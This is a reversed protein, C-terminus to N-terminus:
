STTLGLAIAKQGAEFRSRVELKALIASVHHDVTRTSVTLQKAIEANRLGKALLVLVEIERDSLGSPNSRTTDRPGRAIRTAGMQRLREIARKAAPEAGLSQFISLARHVDAEEPSAALAQAEDYPCGLEAWASAAKEPHGDLYFAYPEAPPRPCEFEVGIRNAWFAFEGVLWPNTTESYASMGARIELVAARLDGALWAAEARAPRLPYTTEGGYSAQFAIAEDLWRIAEEPEGRRAALRGLAALSQGRGHTSGRAIVSRAELEADAWRGRDLLADVIDGRLCWEGADMDREEFIVRARSWYEDVSEYLRNERGLAILNNLARVMDQDLDAAQARRLSEQLRNWGEPIGLNFEAVGLTNLVHVAVPEAGLREAMALALEAIPRADAYMGSMMSVQALRAYARAVGADDALSELVNVADDAARLARETEGNWWLYEALDSIALGVAGIDDGERLLEIAREQSAVAVSCNDQINCEHAHAALL